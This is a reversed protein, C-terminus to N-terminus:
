PMVQLVWGHTFYPFKWDYLARERFGAVRQVKVGPIGRSFEEMALDLDPVFRYVRFGLFARRKRESIVSATWRQPEYEWLRLVLRHDDTQKQFTFKAPTGSIFAPFVPAQIQTTFFGEPEIRTWGTATVVRLLPQAGASLLVNVPAVPEGTLGYAARPIGAITAPATAKDGQLMVAPPTAPHVHMYVAAAAVWVALVVIGSIDTRVRTDPLRSINQTLTTMFVVVAIGLLFGAAVDSPFHVGLYVRSFGILVISALVSFALVMRTRTLGPHYWLWVYLACFFTIAVTAHGSPFSYGHASITALAADPRARLYVLKIINSPM